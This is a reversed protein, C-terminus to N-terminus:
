LKRFTMVVETRMRKKLVSGESKNPPPLYRRNEPIKRWTRKKLDFGVIAAAKNIIKSNEVFVENICSNGIVFTAQGNRNLVRYCESLVKYMDVSYRYIMNVKRRELKNICSLGKTIEHALDISHSKDPAKEIGVNEAKVQALTGISYGLWVLSLKHGRMYDLANLYPPSTIVAEISDDEVRLKRADGQSVKVRSSDDNESYLKALRDCIKEYNSFVDFDNEVMVKHPRSHSIDAGLSAGKSKTIILRSLAIKGLDNHSGQSNSLAFSLKRLSNIQKKAFWFKIYEKTEPDNDIWPLYVDSLRLGKATELIDRSRKLFRKPNINATWAKTMLVALPDIDFGIGNLKKKTITKLVTGSGAMPDLVTSGKKLGTLAEFAIEPAM